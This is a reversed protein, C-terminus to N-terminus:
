QRTEQEAGILAMTEENPVFQLCWGTIGDAPAFASVIQPPRAQGTEIRGAPIVFATAPGRHCTGQVINGQSPEYALCNKCIALPHRM